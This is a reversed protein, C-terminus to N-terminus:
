GENMFHSFRLIIFEAPRVAAMGIEVIMRGNLVDDATMTEGLGVKVFFAEEPKAGMLAGARWQLTLFNSIMAQVKTWTNADNPEFVFQSSAKKTSEEVMNFFRRVSVYRWENDNGALTRAGWVLIGKGTFTRIANVSKGTATVNMDMQDDEDIKVMPEKVRSLSVNAPAKWVGRTRDVTAYVGAVAPTPPMIVNVKGIAAKIKHFLENNAHYLSNAVDNDDRLKLGDAIGGTVTQTAEDYRYNMTSRLFPFYAAGYSLYNNGINTRFDAQIATFAATTSSVDPDILVVRDMLEGAQTLAATYVDYYGGTMGPADPFLLMTPEDEKRVATLGALTQTANALNASAYTGVSVIYCPGGGNAFYMEMAYNMRFSPGPDAIDGNLQDTGSQTVLNITFTTAQADGFITVFDNLSKIRTPKNALSLGNYTNRQTYGIFAPIATEVQAVSPPLLSVEDVYVGPTKYDM